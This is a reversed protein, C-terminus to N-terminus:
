TNRSDIHMFHITTSAWQSNYPRLSWFAHYRDTVHQDVYNGNWKSNPDTGWGVQISEHDLLGDSNWDYYLVDGTVVADPTWYNSASGPATGEQWGGPYTANLFYFQDQAVSWSHSWHFGTNPDWSVWWLTDDTTSGNVGIYSFGGQHLAQSVFNACDAGFSPYNSNRGLAWADAYSAASSGSFALAPTTTFAVMATSLLLSAIGLTLFSRYRHRRRIM